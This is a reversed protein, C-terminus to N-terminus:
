EDATKEPEPGPEGGEERHPREPVGEPAAPEAGARDAPPPRETAPDGEAPRELPQAAPTDGAAREGAPPPVPAEGPVDAPRAEASPVAERDAPVVGPPVEDPRMAPRFDAAAPPTSEPAAAGEAAPEVPTDGAPKAADATPPPPPGDGAARRTGVAVAPIELRCQPRLLPGTCSVGVYGNREFPKLVKELGALLTALQAGETPATVARAAAATKDGPAKGKDAADPTGDAGANAAEPAGAKAKRAPAKNNVAFAFHLNLSAAKFGTKGPPILVHSTEETLLEVQGGQAELAEIHIVTAKEQGRQAALVAVNQKLAMRIKLTVTGLGLDQVRVVGQGKVAIEPRLLEADTMDLDVTGTLDEPSGGYHVKLAGGLAGDLDGGVTRTAALLRPGIGMQALSLGAIKGIEVDFAEGKMSFHGDEITGGGAEAEFSVDLAKGLLPLLAVRGDLRAVKLTVEPVSLGPAGGDQAEGERGPLTLALGAVEIRGLLGLRLDDIKLPFGAAAARKTLYLKAQRAPFTAPVALVLVLAFFGVYGAWGAAARVRPHDRMSVLELARNM